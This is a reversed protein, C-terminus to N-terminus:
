PLGLGGACNANSGNGATRGTRQHLAASAARATRASIGRQAATRLVNSTQIGVDKAEHTWGHWRGVMADLAQEERLDAGTAAVEAIAIAM